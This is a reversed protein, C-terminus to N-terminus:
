PNWSRWRHTSHWKPSISSHTIHFKGEPHNEEQTMVVDNDADFQEIRKAEDAAQQHKAACSVWTLTGVIKVKAIAEDQKAAKKAKNAADKVIKDIMIQADDKENLSLHKLHDLQNPEVPGLFKAYEDKSAETPWWLPYEAQLADMFQPFATSQDAYVKIAGLDSIMPDGNNRFNYQGNTSKLFHNFIQAM